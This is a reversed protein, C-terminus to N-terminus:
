KIITRNKKCLFFDKMIEAKEVDLLGKKLFNTLTGKFEYGRVRSKCNKLM